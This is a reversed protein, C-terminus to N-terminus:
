APATSEAFYERVATDHYFVLSLISVMSSFVNGFLLCLLEFVALVRAPRVPRLPKLLVRGAYAIEFGGLVVPLITVPACLLGIFNTLAVVGWVINVIGSLLTMVGIANLLPPRQRDSPAVM